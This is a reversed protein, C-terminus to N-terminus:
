IQSPLNHITRFHHDSRVQHLDTGMISLYMGLFNLKEVGMSRITDQCIKFNWRHPIPELPGVDRYKRRHPFFICKGNQGSTSSGETRWQKSTYTVLMKYLFIFSFHLFFRVQKIVKLECVYNRSMKDRVTLLLKEINSAFIITHLWILASVLELYTFVLLTKVGLCPTLCQEM